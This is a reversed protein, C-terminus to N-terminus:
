LLRNKYLISNNNCCAIVTINRQLNIINIMIMVDKKIRLLVSHLSCKIEGESCSGLAISIIVTTLVIVAVVTAVM